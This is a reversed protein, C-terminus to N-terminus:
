STNLPDLKRVMNARCANADFAAARVVPFNEASLKEASLPVTFTFRATNYQECRRSEEESARLQEKMTRRLPEISFFAEAENDRVITTSIDKHM